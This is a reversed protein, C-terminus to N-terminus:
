SIKGASQIVKVEILESPTELKVDKMRYIQLIAKREKQDSNEDVSIFVETHEGSGSNQDARIWSPTGKIEMSWTGQSAINLKKTGSDKDFMLSKVDVGLLPPMNFTINFSINSIEDNGCKGAINKPSQSGSYRSITNMIGIEM